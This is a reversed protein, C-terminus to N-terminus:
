EIGLADAVNQWLVKHQVEPSVGADAMLALYDRLLPLFGGPGGENGFVLKGWHAEGGYFLEAFNCITTWRKGTTDTGCLDFYIKPNVRMLMAAHWTDPVGLHAGWIVLDPFCRAIRDLTLPMMYRSSTDWRDHEAFRASIGTHFLIPMGLEEAAEYIPFFEDADYMNTPYQTKLAKFGAGHWARVDDVSDEGLFVFAVPVITDPHQEAAAMVGDNDHQRWREGGGNLCLKEIGADTAAQVMEELYGDRKQYHCHNDIVRM